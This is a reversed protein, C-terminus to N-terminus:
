KSDDGLGAIGRVGWCEWSSVRFCCGASSTRFGVFGSYLSELGCAGTEVTVGFVPDVASAMIRLSPMFGADEPDFALRKQPVPVNEQNRKEVIRNEYKERGQRITKLDPESSRSRSHDRADKATYKM